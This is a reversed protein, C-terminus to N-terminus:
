KFLNNSQACGSSFFFSTNGEATNEIVNSPCTIVMGFASSGGFSTNGTITSNAGINFNDMANFNATNGAVTDAGGTLYGHRTNNAATNHTLTVGAVSAFGDVKNSRFTCDKVLANAGVVLGTKTNNIFRGGSVNANAGLFAGFGGNNLSQVNEAQTNPGADIGDGAMGLVRVGEIQITDSKALNIGVAFTRISGNRITLGVRGTGSDTIASGTSNGVISFGNLDITVLAAGIKLCDGVAALNKTLQYSGSSSLTSCTGLPTPQALVAEGHTVLGAFLIGSLLIRTLAV